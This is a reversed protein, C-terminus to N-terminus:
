SMKRRYHPLSHHQKHERSASLGAAVAIKDAKKKGFKHLNRRYSPGHHLERINESANSGLPM